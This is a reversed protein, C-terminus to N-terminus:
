AISTLGGPIFYAEIGIERLKDMVSDMKHVKYGDLLLVPGVGDGREQLYPVLVMDIWELMVEKDMWANEQCILTSESPIFPLERSAVRGTSTGKFVVMPKLLDGGASITVAM